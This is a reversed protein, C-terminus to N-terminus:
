SCLAFYAEAYRRASDELCLERQVYARPAFENSALRARFRDLAPAFEDADAFREGCDPGFFPVSSAPVPESSYRQRLPDLWFGNDWALVPVDSSLAEQYALGQTEHECVFVMGRSRALMGRYAAQDHQGYRLVEFTCGADSLGNVVPDLIAPVYHDRAWRIKDYVVFDLDKDDLALSPWADADIGAFWLVCRDAGYTPAFLDMMWQCPVIYRRFRPDDMLNPALAPHDYMGPGLITPNPLDFEPVARPYGGFGVPYTPNALALDRREEHVRYGADRLSRALNRYAVHFGTTRQRRFVRQYMPRGVHRAVEAATRPRGYLEGFFLLVDQGVVLEEPERGLETM